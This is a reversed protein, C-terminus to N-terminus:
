RLRKKAAQVNWAGGIAGLTAGLLAFVVGIQFSLQLNQATAGHMWGLTLGDGYLRMVIRLVFVGPVLSFLLAAAGLYLTLSTKGLLNYVFGALGVVLTLMGCIAILNWGPDREALDLATFTVKELGMPSAVGWPLFFAALLLVGGLPAVAARVLKM